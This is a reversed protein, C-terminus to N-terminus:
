KWKDVKEGEQATQSTRGATNQNTTKEVDKHGAVTKGHRQVLNRIRHTKERERSNHKLEQTGANVRKGWQFKKYQHGSSGTRSRKARMTGARKRERTAKEKEIKACKVRNKEVTRRPRIREGRALNKDSPRSGLRRKNKWRVTQTKEGGEPVRM